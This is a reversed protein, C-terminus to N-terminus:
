FIKSKEGYYLEEISGSTKKVPCQMGTNDIMTDGTLLLQSVPVIKYGDSILKEIIGPLAEPTHKAANHFLIISGAKVNKLVRESIEQASLEKWDLSDVDWQIATMGMGNVTSIVTDNYEGYPCRFLTPRVGTIKEIKDNSRNINDEIQEKTLQAFHAHDDSHSMVENGADSLAKVSEPYRDVWQGVVFFTANVKYKNLTDILTQTDENGWAADFSLAVVKDERQVCYVPLERESASVGVVAPSNVAWFIIGILLVFSVASLLAKRNKIKDLVGKM